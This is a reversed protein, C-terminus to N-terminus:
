LNEKHVKSIDLSILTSFVYRQILSVAFELVLLILLGIITIMIIIYPVRIVGDRVLEILLHGATINATLRVALTLPRIFTRVFEILVIFPILILPTGEPVLHALFKSLNKIISYLHLGLWMNFAIACTFVLHRTATFVHPLLGLFNNILLYRFLSFSILPFRRRFGKYNTLKAEIILISILKKLLNFIRRKLLWLISPVFLIIMVSIWNLRLQFINIRPEFSSFLNRIKFRTFLIYIYNNM